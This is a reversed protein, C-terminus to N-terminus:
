CEVGGGSCSAQQPATGASDGGSQERRPVAPSFWVSCEPQLFPARFSSLSPPFAHQACHSSLTAAILDIRSECQVDLTVQASMSGDFGSVCRYRTGSNYRDVVGLDFVSVTINSQQVVGSVGSVQGNQNLVVSGAGGGSTICNIVLNTGELVPDPVSITLSAALPCLCALVSSRPSLLACSCALM